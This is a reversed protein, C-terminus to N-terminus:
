IVGSRQFMQPAILKANATNGGPPLTLYLTTHVEAPGFIASMGDVESESWRWSESKFLNEPLTLVPLDALQLQLSQM